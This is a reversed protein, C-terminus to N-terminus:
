SFYSYEARSSISWLFVEVIRAGLETECMQLPSRGQFKPNEQFIFLRIDRVDSLVSRANCYVRVLRELKQSSMSTLRTGPPRPVSHGLVAAQITSANVETLSMTRSAQILSEVPLGSSVVRDLEILSDCALPIGLVDAIDSAKAFIM